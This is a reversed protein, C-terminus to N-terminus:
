DQQIFPIIKTPKVSFTLVDSKTISFRTFDVTWEHQKYEIIRTELATVSNNTNEVTIQGTETPFRVIVGGVKPMRSRTFFTGLRQYLANMDAVLLQLQQGSITNTMPLTALVQVSIDCPLTNATEIMINPNIRRLNSDQPVRIEGTADINIQENHRGSSMTIRTIQCGQKTQPDRLFYALRAALKAEDPRNIRSVDDYFTKYEFVQSAAHAYGASAGM